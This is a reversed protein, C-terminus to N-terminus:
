SILDWGDIRMHRAEPGCAGGTARETAVPTPPWARRCHGADGHDCLACARYADPQGWARHVRQMLQPAAATASM